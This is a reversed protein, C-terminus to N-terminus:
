AGNGTQSSDKAEYGLSSLLMKEGISPSPNRSIESALAGKQLEIMSVYSEIDEALERLGKAKLAEISRTYFRKM